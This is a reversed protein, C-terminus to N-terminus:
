DLGLVVAVRVRVGTGNPLLPEAPQVVSSYADRIGVLWPLQSSLLDVQGTDVQDGM